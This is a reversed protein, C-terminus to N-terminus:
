DLNELLEQVDGDKPDFRLYLISSSISMRANKEPKDQDNEYAFNNNNNNNGQFNEQDNDSDCEDIRKLNLSLVDFEIQKGDEIVQNATFDWDILYNEYNKIKRIMRGFNLFYLKRFIFYQDVHQQSYVEVNNEDLSFELCGDKLKVSIALFKKDNRKAKKLCFLFKKSKLDDENQMQDLYNFITELFKKASFNKIRLNYNKSFKNFPETVGHVTVPLSKFILSKNKFTLIELFNILKNEKDEKVKKSKIKLNLYGNESPKSNEITKAYELYTDLDVALTQIDHNEPLRQGIIANTNLDIIQFSKQIINNEDMKESSFFKYSFEFITYPLEELKKIDGFHKIAIPETSFGYKAKIGNKSFSILVASFDKLHPCAIISLFQFVKEMILHDELLINFKIRPKLLQKNQNQNQNNPSNNNNNINTRTNPNNNNFNIENIDM